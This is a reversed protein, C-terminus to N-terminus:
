SAAGCNTLTLHLALWASSRAANREAGRVGSSRAAFDIAGQPICEGCFGSLFKCPPSRHAVGPTADLLRSFTLPKPLHLAQWAELEASLEADAAVAFDIATRLIYKCFFSSLFSRPPSRHSVSPVSRM